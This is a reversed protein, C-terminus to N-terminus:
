RVVMLLVFPMGRRHRTATCHVNPWAATQGSPARSGGDRRAGPYYVVEPVRGPVTAELAADWDRPFADLWLKM